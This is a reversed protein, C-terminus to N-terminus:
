IPTFHIMPDSGSQQEVTMMTQATTPTNTDCTLLKPHVHGLVFLHKLCDRHGVAVILRCSAAARGSGFNIDGLRGLGRGTTPASPTYSPSNHPPQQITPLAGVLEFAAASSQHSQRTKQRIHSSHSCDLCENIGIEHISGLSEKGV